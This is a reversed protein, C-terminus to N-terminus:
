RGSRARMRDYKSHMAGPSLYLPAITELAVPAFDFTPPLAGNCVADKQMSALNDRSMLRGPLHELLTASLKSLAPGLPGDHRKASRFLV